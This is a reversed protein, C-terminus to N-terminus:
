TKVSIRNCDVKNTVLGERGPYESERPQWEFEGSIPPDRTLFYDTVSSSFSNVLLGHM